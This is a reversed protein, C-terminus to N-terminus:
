GNRLVTTVRGLQQLSFMVKLKLEKLNAEGELGAELDDHHRHQEPELHDHEGLSRDTEASESIEMTASDDELIGKGVTPM